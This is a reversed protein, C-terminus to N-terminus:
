RLTNNLPSMTAIHAHIVTRTQMPDITSAPRIAWARWRDMLAHTHAAAITPGM